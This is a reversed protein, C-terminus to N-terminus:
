SEVSFARCDSARGAHAGLRLLHRDGSVICEAKGDVACELVRNDDPDDPVANLMFDPDVLLAVSELKARIAAADQTSVGFKERLKEDLEDLLPKSTVLTFRRDLALKLVVGPLGDFMLASILINTDAVVRV